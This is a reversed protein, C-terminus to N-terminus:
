QTSSSPIKISHLINGRTILLLLKPSDKLGMLDRRFISLRSYGYIGISGKVRKLSSGEYVVESNGNGFAGDVWHWQVFARLFVDDINRTSKM